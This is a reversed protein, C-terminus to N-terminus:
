NLKELDKKIQKKLEEANAFKKVERIKRIIKIKVSKGYIDFDFNKIFLELSVDECFTKKPGFHLLGQYPKKDAGCRKSYEVRRRSKIDQRFLAPYVEAEVLYVGHKIKLDTKDLNATPFGLRKGRGRGIIVKATFKM